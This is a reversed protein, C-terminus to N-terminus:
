IVKVDNYIHKFFFFTNKINWDTSHIYILIQNHKQGMFCHVKQGKVFVITNENFLRVQFFESAQSTKLWPQPEPVKRQVLQM